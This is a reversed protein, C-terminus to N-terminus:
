FHLGTLVAAATSDRIFCQNRLDHDGGAILRGHFLIRNGLSIGMPAEHIVTSRLGREREATKSTTGRRGGRYRRKGGCIAFGSDLFRSAHKEDAFGGGLFLRGVLRRRTGDPAGRGVAVAAGMAPGRSGCAAGTM